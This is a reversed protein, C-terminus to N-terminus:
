FRLTSRNGKKSNCKRCLPQINSRDNIGGKSIPIVHDITLKIEPESKLCCPCTFNHKAKLIDWEKLTFSGGAKSKRARRINEYIVRTKKIRELTVEIPKKFSNNACKISCFFSKNVRSPTVKYPASCLKCIKKIWEKKKLRSLKEKTSNSRKVGTANFWVTPKIGKRKLTLSIKLKTEQSHGM